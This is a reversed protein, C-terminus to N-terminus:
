ETAAPLRSHLHTPRRRSTDPARQRNKLRAHTDGKHSAPITCAIQKIYRHHKKITLNLTLCPGPTLGTVTLHRIRARKTAIIHIRKQIRSARPRTTARTFGALRREGGFHIPDMWPGQAIDPPITKTDTTYILSGSTQTEPASIMHQAATQRAAAHIRGTPGRRRRNIVLAPVMSSAGPRPRRTRPDLIDDGGNTLLRM